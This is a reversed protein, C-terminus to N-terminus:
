KDGHKEAALPAALIIDILTKQTRAARDGRFLRTVFEDDARLTDWRLSALRKEEASVSTQNRVMEAVDNGIDAVRRVADIGNEIEVRARAEGAAVVDPGLGKLVDPSGHFSMGGAVGREIKSLEDRAAVDGRRLRDLFAPDRSMQSRRAWAEAPTMMADAAVAGPAPTAPATTSAPQPSIIASAGAIVPETM